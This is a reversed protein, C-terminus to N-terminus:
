SFAATLAFAHRGHEVSYERYLHRFGHLMEDFFISCILFIILWDLAAAIAKRQEIDV